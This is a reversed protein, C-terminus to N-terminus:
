DWLSRLLSFLAKQADKLFSHAERLDVKAQTILSANTSTSNSANVQAVGSIAKGAEVKANAAATTYTGFKANLDAQESASSSAILGQIRTNFGAMADVSGQIRVAKKTIAAATTTARKGEHELKDAHKDGKHEIRDLTKEIRTGISVQGRVKVDGEHAFALSPVLLAAAAAGAAVKTIFVNM